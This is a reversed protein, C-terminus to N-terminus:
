KKSLTLSAEARELFLKILLKKTEVVSKLQRVYIEATPLTEALPFRFEEYRLIDFGKFKADIELAGIKSSGIDLVIYRM